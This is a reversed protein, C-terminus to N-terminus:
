DISLNQIIKAKIQMVIYYMKLVNEAEMNKRIFSASAELM